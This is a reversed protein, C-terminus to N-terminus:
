DHHGVFQGGEAYSYGRATMCARYKDTAVRPGGGVYSTGHPGPLMSPKDVVTADRACNQSDGAFQASTTNPRSWHKDACGVLAVALVALAIASRRGPWTIVRGAIGVAILGVIVPIQTEALPM